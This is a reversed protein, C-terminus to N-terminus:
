TMARAHIMTPHLKKFDLHVIFTIDKCHKEHINLLPAHLKSLCQDTFIAM